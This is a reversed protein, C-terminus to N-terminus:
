WLRVRTVHPGVLNGNLENIYIQKNVWVINADELALAKVGTSFIVVDDLEFELNYNPPVVRGATQELVTQASALDGGEVYQIVLHILPKQELIQDIEGSVRKELIFPANVERIKVEHLQELFDNALVTGQVTVPTSLHSALIVLVGIVIVTIGIIADIVFFIGKKKMM